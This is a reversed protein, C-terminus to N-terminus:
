EQHDEDTLGLIILTISVVNRAVNANWLFPSFIRSQNGCVNSTTAVVETM